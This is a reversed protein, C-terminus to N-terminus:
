VEKKFSKLINENKKKIENNSVDIEKPQSNLFDNYQSPNDNMILSNAWVTFSREEYYTSIFSEILPYVEEFDMKITTFYLNYKVMM